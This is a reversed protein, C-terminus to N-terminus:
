NFEIDGGGSQWEAIMWHLQLEIYGKMYIRSFVRVEDNADVKPLFVRHIEGDHNNDEDGDDGVKEHMHFLLKVYYGKDTGAVGTGTSNEVGTYHAFMYIPKDPLLQYNDPYPGDPEGGLPYDKTIENKHQPTGGQDARALLEKGGRQHEGSGPQEDEPREEKHIIDNENLTLNTQPFLYGEKPTNYLYMGRDMYLEGAGTKAFYMCLKAVSRELEFNCQRNQSSITQVGEVAMPLPQGYEPLGSFRLGKLETPTTGGGEAFSWTGDTEDRTAEPFSFSVGNDPSHLGGAQEENAVIYFYCRQGTQSRKLGLEIPFSYEAVDEVIEGSYYFGLLQADADNNDFVYVRISKLRNEPDTGDTETAVGGVKFNLDVTVRETQGEREGAYEDNICSAASLMCLMCAVRIYLHKLRKTKM